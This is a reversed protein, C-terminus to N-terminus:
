PESIGMNTVLRATESQMKANRDILCVSKSARTLGLIMKSPNLKSDVLKHSEGKQTMASPNVFILTEEAPLTTKEVHGDLLKCSM